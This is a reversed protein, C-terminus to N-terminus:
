SFQLRGHVSSTLQTNEATCESMHALVQKNVAHNPPSHTSSASFSFYTVFCGNCHIESSLYM